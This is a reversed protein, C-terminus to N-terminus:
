QGCFVGDVSMCDIESKTGEGAAGAPIVWEVREGIEVAGNM